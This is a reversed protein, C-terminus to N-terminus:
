RKIVQNSQLNGEQKNAFIQSNEHERIAPDLLPLLRLQVLSYTEVTMGEYNTVNGLIGTAIPM